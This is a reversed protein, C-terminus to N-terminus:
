NMVETKFYVQKKCDECIVMWGARGCLMEWTEPPSKFYFVKLYKVGKGCKPCIIKEEILKPLIENYGKGTEGSKQNNICKMVHSWPFYIEKDYENYKIDDDKYSNRLDNNLKKERKIKREDLSKIKKLAQSVSNLLVKRPKNGDHMTKRGQNFPIGTYEEINKIAQDRKVVKNFGILNKHKGFERMIGKLTMYNKDDVDILMDSLSM